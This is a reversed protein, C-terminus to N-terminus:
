RVIMYAESGTVLEGNYHVRGMDDVGLFEGHVEYTAIVHRGKALMSKPVHKKAEKIAAERSILSQGWGFPAIAIYIM